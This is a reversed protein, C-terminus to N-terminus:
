SVAEQKSSSTLDPASMNVKISAGPLDLAACLGEVTIQLISEVDKVENLKRSIEYLQNQLASQRATHETYQANTLLLSIQGALVELAELEPKHIPNKSATLIEFVGFAKGFVILPFVINIYANNLIAARPDIEALSQKNHIGPKSNLLCDAVPSPEDLSINYKKPDTESPDISSFALLSIFKQQNDALWLSVCSVKLASRTRMAIENSLEEIKLKSSNLDKVAELAAFIGHEKSDANQHIPLISHKEERDRM